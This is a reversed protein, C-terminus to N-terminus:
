SPRASLSRLFERALRASDAWTPRQKFSKLAAMSLRLLLTRDAALTELHAALAGADGPEILYGNLGPTIISPIAGVRSGIAPLGQAMGELFAIGFGEYQSPLVLVHARRLRRAVSDGQLLGWFTVPLGSDAARRRMTRAYIPEISDSGVVDLACMDPPLLDLASLVVDLGKGSTVNALFVLRLPASSDTRRAVHDATASGLRDGGPPAVISPQEHITLAQVSERTVVSNFIFADVSGVYFREVARHLDNLWAARRESSRLNHVISVVPVSHRRSNAWLLSPHNLEDQLIIDYGRPLRVTLNDLFRALYRRSPLSIVDVTEGALRFNEVMARDYLYGGSVTDLSGYIILAIRM